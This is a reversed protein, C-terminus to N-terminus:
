RIRGAAALRRSQASRQGGLLMKERYVSLQWNNYKLPFPVLGFADEDALEAFVHKVPAGCKMCHGHLMGDGNSPFNELWKVLHPCDTVDRCALTAKKSLM